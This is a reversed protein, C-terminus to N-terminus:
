PSLQQLCFGPNVLGGRQAITYGGACIARIVSRKWRTIAKHRLRSVTTVSTQYFAGTLVHHIALTPAIAFDSSHGGMHFLWSTSSSYLAEANMTRTHSSCLSTSSAGTSHRPDISCTALPLTFYRVSRLSTARNMPAYRSAIPTCTKLNPYTTM